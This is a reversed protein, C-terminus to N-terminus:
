LICGMALLLSCMGDDGNGHSVSDRDGDNGDDDVAADFHDVARLSCWTM